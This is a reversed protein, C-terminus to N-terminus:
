LMQHVLNKEIQQQLIQRETDNINLGNLNERTSTVRDLVSSLDPPRTGEGTNIRPGRMNTPPSGVPSGLSSAPSRLEGDTNQSAIPRVPTYTGTNFTVPTLPSLPGTTNTPLQRGRTNTSEPTGTAETTLGTIDTVNTGPPPPLGTREKKPTFPNNNNDDNGSM